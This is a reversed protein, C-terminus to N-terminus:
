RVKEDEADGILATQFAARQTHTGQVAPDAEHPGLTHSRGRKVALWYQWSEPHSAPAWQLSPKAYKSCWPSKWVM